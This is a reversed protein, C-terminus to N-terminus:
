RYFQKHFICPSLSVDIFLTPEQLALLLDTDDAITIFDGDLSAFIYFCVFFDGSDRYKLQIDNNNSISFVRQLMLVLDNLTLDHAHHISRRRIDNGFRAKLLTTTGGNTSVM